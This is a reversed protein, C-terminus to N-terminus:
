PEPLKFCCEAAALLRKGEELAEYYDNPKLRNGISELPGFAGDSGEYKLQYWAYPYLNSFARKLDENADPGAQREESSRTLYVSYLRMAADLSGSAKARELNDLFRQRRLELAAAYEPERVDRRRDGPYETGYADLQARVDGADAAVEVWRPYENLEDIDADKCFDFLARLRRVNQEANPPTEVYRGGSPVQYPATVKKIKQELETPTRPTSVCAHAARYLDFAAQADGRTAPELLRTRLDNWSGSSTVDPLPARLVVSFEPQAYKRVLEAYRASSDVPTLERAASSALHPEAPVAPEDNSANSADQKHLPDPSNGTAFYWVVAIAALTGAAWRVYHNM